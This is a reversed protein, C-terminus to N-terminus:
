HEQIRFSYWMYTKISCTYLLTWKNYFNELFNPYFSFNHGDIYKTNGPCPRNCTKLTEKKQKNTKSYNVNSLNGNRNIKSLCECLIKLSTVWIRRIGENYGTLTLNELGAKKTQHGQLNKERRSMNLLLKMKRKIRM